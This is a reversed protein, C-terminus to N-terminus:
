PVSDAIRIEAMAEGVLEGEEVRLCVSHAGPGPSEVWLDLGRGVPKDDIIWTAQEPAIASGAFSSASGLLHLQRDNYVPAGTAPYLISVAPPKRPLMVVDTTACVTHFGDHGLLEFRVPGSPLQERDITVSPGRQGVTLAHWTAGDDSTWRVWVEPEATKEAKSSCELKWTLELDGSRTVAANASGLVPPRATGKREWVVEGRKLIRLTAGPATDDLMAKFLVPQPDDCGAGGDHGQCGGCGGESVYGYLSDQALVRGHADLHQAVYGTQRGRGRLYRTTLRAVSRVDVKGDVGIVGLMHILPRLANEDSEFRPFPDTIRRAPAGSGTPIVVPSLGAINLLYNHTFISIWRPGCYSMFDEADNPNAIAGTNIDLGYEGISAMTWNATNPPDVPLDYPEYVPYNPNGNGANGCRAHPLGFQHGMEHAYTPPAGALGGTAGWGSCGPVNVPIGGAVLGYYVWPGPNATQDLAVLAAVQLLLPQWNPSCCGPCSRADNLPTPTVFTGGLRVNAAGSVPYTTMAWSTEAQCQALTPAPLVINGTNSANPGNYGITIFAANLTQTLNVDVQVTGTATNGHCPAFPSAVDVTFRLLGTMLNAPVVFNLTTNINGREADYSPFSDEVVIPGNQPGLNAITHWVGGTRREVRLTGTVGALQGNDFSPDQGSRLYTRVWATKNTVLRLTNDSGRDGADTLHEAARYYQIAQTVELGQVQLHPCRQIV